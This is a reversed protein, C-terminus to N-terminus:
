EMLEVWGLLSFLIERDFDWDKWDEYIYVGLDDFIYDVCKDFWGKTVEDPPNLDM